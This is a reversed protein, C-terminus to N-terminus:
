TKKLMEDIMDKLIILEKKTSDKVPSVSEATISVNLITFIRQASVAFTYRYHDRKWEDPKKKKSILEGKRLDRRPCEAITSTADSHICKM